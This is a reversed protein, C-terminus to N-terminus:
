GTWALYNVIYYWAAFGLATMVVLTIAIWILAKRKM